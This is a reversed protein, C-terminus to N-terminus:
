HLVIKGSTVQRESTILRYLYVGASFAGLDLDLQARVSGAANVPYSKLQRGAGDYLELKGNNVPGGIRVQVQRSGIYNISVAPESAKGWRVPIVKSVERHGDFDVQQLRYYSLGNVPAADTFSYSREQTTTGSAAVNGIGTYSVGDSSREVIFRDANQEQATTWRLLVGDGSKSASFSTLEVPLTWSGGHIWFESFGTVSFQIYNAGFEQGNTISTKPIFVVSGGSFDLTGDENSGSYKTVNLDAASHITTDVTQLEQLRADTFYLRVQVPASPQTAVTIKYHRAMYHQGNSLTGPQADVYVAASATGLNQGNDKIAAVVASASSNYLTKWVGNDCVADSTTNPGAIASLSTAVIKNRLVSISSYSMNAVVLDPRGDGDVDAVPIGMPDAPSYSYNVKTAFSIAGSTFSLNRLVSINSSANNTVAVDPLGDGDVDGISLGFYPGTGVPYDVRAAFSVAGSSSTNRLVSVSASNYNETALDPKGDGDLDGLAVVRPGNGVTLDIKGAFSVSGTGTSTNRLVSITTTSYNSVAIDTKGDGDIDAAAVGFPGAGTPFDVKAAFSISGIALSTNRFVSVTSANGNAILVDLKGDADVDAFAVGQPTTSTTLDIRSAFSVTGSSSTNRLVSITNGSQNSTVVDPKGDNDLDGMGLNSPGSGVAVDMRAAFSVSGSSSTNRLVSLSAESYNATFLDLRGDGDLDGMVLGYPHVGSVSFSQNAAFSAASFAPTCSNNFTPVFPQSSYDLLRTGTNLVQIPGYGAGTPVTVTLSTASASTVTARVGTFYVINNAATANFGTGSITVTSGVSGSAPSFSSIQPIQGTVKATVVLGPLVFLLYKKAFLNSNGLKM